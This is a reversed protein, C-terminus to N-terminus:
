PADAQGTNSRQPWFDAPYSPKTSTGNTPSTTSSEDRARRELGAPTPTSEPDKPGLKAGTKALNDARENGEIDCHGPKKLRRFANDEEEHPISTIVVDQGCPGEVLFDFQMCDM